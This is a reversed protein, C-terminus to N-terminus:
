IMKTMLMILGYIVPATFIVSDFRDMIGGHGPILNGYDKIDYNRKIASAAWDGLQSIVSAVAAAIGCVLVPSGITFKDAFILAYICGILASGIIGGFFGEVSKKPSLKPAIKHKGIKSGVLYACTDSIWSGIFILWVLYVGNEIMRLKYVFSLMVAVYVFGFFVMTIQESRFKPFTLVYAFMLILFFAIIGAMVYEEKEFRVLLQYGICALYGIMGPLKKNVGLVRYLEMMGILSIAMIVCFLVDGGLILALAACIVIIVSSRFRIWFM